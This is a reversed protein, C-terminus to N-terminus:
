RVTTVILVNPKILAYVVRLRKGDIDTGLASYSWSDLDADFRTRDPQHQGNFLVKEISRPDVRRLAMRGSAHQTYQVTGVSRLWKRAIDLPYNEPTM